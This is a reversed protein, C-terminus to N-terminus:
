VGHSRAVSAEEFSSMCLLRTRLTAPTVSDWNGCSDCVQQFSFLVSTTEVSCWIHSHPCRLFQSVTLLQHCFLKLFSCPLQFGCSCHRRCQCARARHSHHLWTFRPPAEWDLRADCRRLALEPCSARAAAGFCPVFTVIRLFYLVFFPWASEPSWSPRVLLRCRRPSCSFGFRGDRLVPGADM